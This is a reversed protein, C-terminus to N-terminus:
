PMCALFMLLFGFLIGLYCFPIIRDAWMAPIIIEKMVKEIEKQDRTIFYIKSM